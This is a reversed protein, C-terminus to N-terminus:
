NVSYEVTEFLVFALFMMATRIGLSRGAFVFRETSDHQSRMDQPKKKVNRVVGGDKKEDQKTSDTVMGIQPTGPM